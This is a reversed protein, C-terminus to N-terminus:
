NSFYSSPFFFLCARVILSAPIIAPTPQYVSSFSSNVLGIEKKRQAKLLDCWIDLSFETCIIYSYKLAANPLASCLFIMLINPINHWSLFVLAFLSPVPMSSM